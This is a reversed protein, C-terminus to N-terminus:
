RVLMVPIRSSESVKRAVSGLTGLKGIGKRSRSGIVIMDFKEKDVVNLIEDAPSGFGVRVDVSIGKRELGTVVDELMKEVGSALLKRLTSKADKLSTKDSIFSLISSPPSYREDIVYLLTVKSGAPKAIKAAEQVARSSVEGGDHPVLLKAFTAMYKIPSAIQM